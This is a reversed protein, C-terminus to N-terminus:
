YLNSALDLAKKFRVVLHQGCQNEKVMLRPM